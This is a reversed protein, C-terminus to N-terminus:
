PTERLIRTARQVAKRIREYSGCRCLHGNMAQDVESATPQLTRALLAAAEMMQGVQCYGCQPVQEALWARQVAALIPHGSAGEITTIRRQDMRGTPLSCARVAAGDLHVTCAGCHGEGCGYKTGTLGLDDRLTWLLPQDPDGEWRQQRGNIDLTIPNM